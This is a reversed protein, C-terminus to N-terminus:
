KEAKTKKSGRPKLKTGIDKGRLKVSLAREMKSLIQQDITAKTIEYDRVVTEKENIKTALDKQTWGKDKRAQMIAKGVTMDLKPPPKVDDSRDLEAIRRHDTNVHHAKNAIKSNRQTDLINGSRAAANLEGKSRATTTRQTPKRLYLTNDDWDAM